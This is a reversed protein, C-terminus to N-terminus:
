TAEAFPSPGVISGHGMPAKKCRQCPRTSLISGFVFEGPDLCAACVRQRLERAHKSYESVFVGVRRVRQV